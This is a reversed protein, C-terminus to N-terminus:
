GYLKISAHSVTSNNSYNYCYPYSYTQNPIDLILVRLAMWRQSHLILPCHILLCQYGLYLGPCPTQSLFLCWGASEFAWSCCDFQRRTPSSFCRTLYSQQVYNTRSHCLYLFCHRAELVDFKLIKFQPLIQKECGWYIFRFHLGVFFRFPPIWGPCQVLYTRIVVRSIAM